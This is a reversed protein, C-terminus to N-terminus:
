FAVINLFLECHGRGVLGSPKIPSLSLVPPLEGHGDAFSPESPIYHGRPISHPSTFSVLSVNKPIEYKELQRNIADRVNLDESVSATIQL